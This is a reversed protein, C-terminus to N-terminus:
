HHANSQHCEEIREQNTNKNTDNELKYSKARRLKIPNGEVCHCHFRTLAGIFKQKTVKRLARINNKFEEDPFINAKAAYRLDKPNHGQGYTDRKIWSSFLYNHKSLNTAKNLM